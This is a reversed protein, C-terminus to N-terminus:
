VNPILNWDLQNDSKLNSKSEEMQPLPSPLAALGKQHGLSGMHPHSSWALSQDPAPCPWGRQSSVVPGVHPSFM